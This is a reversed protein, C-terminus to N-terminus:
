NNVQIVYKTSMQIVCKDTIVTISYDLFLALSNSIIHRNLVCIM